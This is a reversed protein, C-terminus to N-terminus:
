RSISMVNAIHNVDLRRDDMVMQHICDMNEQTTATFPRGLRPDDELSKKGRKFKAAWKKVTSLASADYGVTAVM